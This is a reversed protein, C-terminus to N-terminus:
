ARCASWVKACVACSQTVEVCATSAVALLARHAIGGKARGNDAGAKAQEGMDARQAHGSEFHARNDATIQGLGGRAGRRKGDRTAAVIQGRQQGLVRRDRQDGDGGRRMGM